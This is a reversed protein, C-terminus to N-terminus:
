DFCGEVYLNVSRNFDQLGDKSIMPLDRLHLTRLAKVASLHFLTTDTVNRVGFFKISTIVPHHRLKCAFTNISQESTSGGDSLEIYQITLIDPLCEIVGDLSFPNEMLIVKRLTSDQGKAALSRFLTQFGLTYVDCYKLDLTHLCRLHLIAYMLNGLMIHCYHIGLCELAPAKRLIDTLTSNPDRAHFLLGQLDRFDCTNLLAEWEGSSTSNDSIELIQISRSRAAFFPIFTVPKDIWLALERIGSTSPENPETCITYDGVFEINFNLTELDTCHRRIAEISTTRVYGISLIRLKPCGRVIEEVDLMEDEDYPLQLTLHTLKSMCGPELIGGTKGLVRYLHCYSFKTLNPCLSLLSKFAIAPHIINAYNVFIHLEQLTEAVCSVANFLSQSREINSEKMVFTKLRKFGSSTMRSLVIDCFDTDLNSLELEM